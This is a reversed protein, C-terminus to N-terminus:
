ELHDYNGKLILDMLRESHFYADDSLSDQIKDLIADGHLNLFSIVYPNEEPSYDINGIFIVNALSNLISKISDPRISDSLLSELMLKM